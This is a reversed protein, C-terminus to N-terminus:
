INLKILSEWCSSSIELYLEKFERHLICTKKNWPPSLLNIFYNRISTYQDISSFYNEIIYLILFSFSIIDWTFLLDNLDNIIQKKNLNIYKKYFLNYNEICKQCENISLLKSSEFYEKLNSLINTLNSHTLNNNLMFIEIYYKPIIGKSIFAIDYPSNTKFSYSFNSLFFCDNECVLFSNLNISNHIINNNHMLYLTNFASEILTILFYIKKAGSYNNIRLEISFLKNTNYKIIKYKSDRINNSKFNSFTLNNSNDITVFFNKFNPIKALENEIEVDNEFEENNKKLKFSTKFTTKKNNNFTKISKIIQSM